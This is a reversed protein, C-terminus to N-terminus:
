ESLNVAFNRRWIVRGLGDPQGQANFDNILLTQAHGDTFLANFTMGHVPAIQAGLSSNYLYRYDPVDWQFDDSVPREAVGIKQSPNVFKEPKVPDVGARGSVGTYAWTQSGIINYSNIPYTSSSSAHCNIHSQCRLGLINGNTITIKERTIYSPSVQNNSVIGTLLNTWIISGVADYSPFPWYTYDGVYSSIGGGIQRLNNTCRISYAKDRANKLSPLLLSALIAIIAIVVLLEILTFRTQKKNM